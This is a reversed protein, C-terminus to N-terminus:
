KQYAKKYALGQFVAITDNIEDKVIVTYSAVRKNQSIETAEAFLTAGKTAKMFTISVNMAVALHDHSNAAAAFALDALTFIAGGHVMGVGNRHCKKLDLKAVAKGNAASLLEIGVYSAFLDKKILTEIDM